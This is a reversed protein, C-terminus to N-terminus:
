PMSGAQTETLRQLRGRLAQWLSPWLLREGREAAAELSQAIDATNPHGLMRLVTKLSHAVRRLAQGDGRALATDGDQLDRVFQQLSRDRMLAFLAADGEFYCQVAEACAKPSGDAAARAEEGGPTAAAPDADAPRVAAASGAHALLASQVCALLARLTVPKVLVQQIGLEALDNQLVPSVSASFLVWHTGAPAGPRRREQELLQLGSGDPLMMDLLVLAAPAAALEARARALTPCPVLTLPMDELAMEVFHRIAADDEVLLVRPASLGPRTAAADM